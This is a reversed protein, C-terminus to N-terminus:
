CAFAISSEATLQTTGLILMGDWGMGERGLAGSAVWHDWADHMRIVAAV